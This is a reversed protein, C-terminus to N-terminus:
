FDNWKKNNKLPIKSLEFPMKKGYYHLIKAILAQFSVM